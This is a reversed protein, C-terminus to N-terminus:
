TRTGSRSIKPANTSMLSSPGCPRSSPWRRFATPPGSATKRSSPNRAERATMIRRRRSAPLRPRKMRSPMSCAHSRQSAQSQLKRTDEDRKNEDALEEKGFKETRDRAEDLRKDMVKAAEEMSKAAKALIHEFVKAEKIKERLSDAEKALGEQSSQDGKLTPLLGKTWQNQRLVKKHLENSRELAADQREKLGKLRDEIKALQERALEEQFNQLKKQAEELRNLAEEQDQAPNEGDALKEAANAMEQAARNLEQSAREENLRSLERANKQAEEKLKEQEEGLCKLEAKRAEPDEIKQADRVKKTLKEQAAAINDLKDQVAQADKQKKKLRLEDDKKGEDLAALM